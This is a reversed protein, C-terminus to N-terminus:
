ADQQLRERGKKIACVAASKPTAALGDAIKPIEATGIAADHFM